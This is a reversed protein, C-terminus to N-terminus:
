IIEWVTCIRCLLFEKRDTYKMEKAHPYIRTNRSTLLVRAMRPTKPHNVFPMKNPPGYRATDFPIEASPKSLFGVPKMWNGFPSKKPLPHCILLTSSSKRIRWWSPASWKASNNHPLRPSSKTTPKPHRTWMTPNALWIFSSCTLHWPFVRGHRSPRTWITGPTNPGYWM